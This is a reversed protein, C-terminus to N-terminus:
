GGFQSWATIQGVGPVLLEQLNSIAGEDYHAMVEPMIKFIKQQDTASLTGFSQLNAPVTSYVNWIYGSAPKGEIQTINGKSDVYIVPKDTKAEQHRNQGCKSLNTQKGCAVYVYGVVQKNKYLNSVPTYGFNALAKGIATNGIAAVDSPVTSPVPPPTDCATLVLGAACLLGVITSRIRISMVTVKRTTTPNSDHKSILSAYFYGYV